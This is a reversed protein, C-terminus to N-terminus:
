MRKVNSARLNVYTKSNRLRLRVQFKFHYHGICVTTAASFSRLHLPVTYLSVWRGPCAPGVHSSGPACACESSPAVTWRGLLVGESRPNHQSNALISVILLIGASFTAHAGPQTSSGKRKCWRVCVKDCASDTM